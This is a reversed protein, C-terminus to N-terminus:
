WTFKDFQNTQNKKLRVKKLQIRDSGSKVDKSKPVLNNLCTKPDSEHWKIYTYLASWIRWDRGINEHVKKKIM